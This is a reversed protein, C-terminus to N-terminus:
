PIEYLPDGLTVWRSGIGTYDNNYFVPGKYAQKFKEEWPDFFSGNIYGYRYVIKPEVDWNGQLHVYNLVSNYYAEWIKENYLIWRASFNQAALTVYDSVYTLSSEGLISHAGKFVGDFWPDQNAYGNRFVLCSNLWVWYSNRVGIGTHNNYFIGGDNWMSIVDVNGHGYYYVFNYNAAASSLFNSEIVDDDEYSYLTLATPTGGNLIYPLNMTMINVAMSTRLSDATTTASYLPLQWSNQYTDIAYTAFSFNLLRGQTIALSQSFSLLTFIIALFVKKM